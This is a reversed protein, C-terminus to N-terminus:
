TACGQVSERLCEQQQSSVPIVLSESNGDSWGSQARMTGDVDVRLGSAGDARYPAMAFM